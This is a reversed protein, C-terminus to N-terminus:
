RINPSHAYMTARNGTRTALPLGLVFPRVGRRNTRPRQGMRSDRNPWVCANGQVFTRQRDVGVSSFQEQLRQYWLLEARQCLDLVM